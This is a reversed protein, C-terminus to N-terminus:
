TYRGVQTSSAIHPSKGARAGVNKQILVAMRTQMVATLSTKCERKALKSLARGRSAFYRPKAMSSSGDSCEPRSVAADNLPVNKADFKMGKRNPETAIPAVPVITSDRLRATRNNNGVQANSGM